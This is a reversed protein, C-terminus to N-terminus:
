RNFRHRFDAYYSSHRSLSKKKLAPTQDLKEAAYQRLLEHVNYRGSPTQRLLSKDVLAGLIPLTARAVKKAAERRFGNRFVSLKCFVERETKSLLNWSHDFVARMSRHRKPVDRLSTTLFDIDRQIEEAIQECSFMRVSASALEIGLPMGEVLRCIRVVYPQTEESLVFDGRVRRVNQLFLKLANYEQARATQEDRPYTLGQVELLWEARLNLRERSTVLIKVHPASHLIDTLLETEQLLHEFSDMVLLLEKERLYDVLQATPEGGSPGRFQFGLADAVTSVLFKASSVPSLPVFYVGQLFADLSETAAQIALRTKGTGGPGVLTLLRCTPDELREAIETLEEERGVFPTPQDPLNHPRVRGAALIREYLATTEQHPEVNLEGALIRRCTEYQQLAASRQGSRALLRMLQQHAEERWPDMEIQRRAYRRARDYDRRREHHKALHYLADLALRHFRERLLLTWDEFPVSEDVFFGALFSGQYLEVAQELQQICAECTELRHHTHTESAAVHTSFTAVDLWHDSEPNFQVTRRTVQLFPSAAEDDRIAQRLNSLAQSLNHRASREPQNPWLFGALAERSHPRDSEVALYILLARVKNSEFGTVPNGDLTVHLSGLSHVSLHAM